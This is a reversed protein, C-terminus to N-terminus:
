PGVQGRIEGSPNTSTHVNVYTLGDVIYGLYATNTVTVSGTLTGSTGSAGSFPIIVGASAGPAAPGHIHAASANASLGSYSVNWSLHNGVLWLTAAGTGPTTVAPVEAAGSLTTHLVAATIQGRIEGGPNIGTHINAYTKGALVNTRESDTLTIVGTLRGSTPAGSVGTFPELVGASQTSSAPGHIHGATAPASLGSYTIDYSLSNGELVFTGLGTAQTTVAPVERDGTMWATFLTANASAPALVRFFGSGDLLPVVAGQNSTTQVDQWQADSLQNKKQVLYPATGGTWAITAAAGQASISTITIAAGGGPTPQPDPHSIVTYLTTDGATNAGGAPTNTSNVAGKGAICIQRTTMAVSPTDTILGLSGDRDYNVFPFFSHTLYTVNTGDFKMVRAAVQFQTFDATPKIKYAVCFRDLADVALAVRDVSHIAPDTDTVVVNTVFSQNRSDFISVTVPTHAGADGGLYVYSSRIDSAIRTGDGRGADYSLGSTEQMVSGKLTGANDYFYITDHVRVAFGGKYAAVNDWIDHPDVLTNTKVVTGTPTIIGFTAVEGATSSFTTKDDWVVVFNGNDLGAVTGGTRSVQNGGGPVTSPDVYEGYVADFAKHLPTQLLTGPDLSFPQVTVYRNDAQYILNSTWRTDSKFQALQGASTEAATIFSTAGLRVDGAVRPPNGNERSLNIAGRYPVGDDSFFEEGIKPAGGAAPQFTVVFRQFPADKTAGPPATQDDAFTGASILFTTDGMVSIYPEWNGLNALQAATDVPGNTYYNGTSNYWLLVDPVVHTLAVSATGGPILTVPMSFDSTHIRANHTGPPDASYNATVTVEGAGLDLGSLDLNFKGVAPDSDFPGNDVFSGLYKRGQPYGNTTGDSNVLEQLGFAAGNAWGEPDLQYVDIIINTYPPTGTACIGVLRPFINTASLIPLIDANTSMFPAAYNTFNNLRSGAGDAYDFPVLDANVLKNGRFSVRAGPSLKLLLPESSSAPTPFQTAFPNNDYIVNAELADSVGDFDSGIRATAQGGLSDVLTASNTFRTVGDVAVGFWNGAIVVNTQPTSYLNIASSGGKAFGGFVNGEDADNVGDGDTGILCNSDDRGIEVYGDGQQAGNNLVSFDASTMGDPLVGWFNGSIRYNLGESDFGYGTIIVNFEARPNASGAAVGIIGPQPYVPNSGTADRHRYAALGIGPAAVTTGDSLYAIQGTAPDVGIWCGSVHWNECSGVYDRAFSLSKITAANGNDGTPNQPASLIALGKITVNTGRFVGLVAWEDHGFGYKQAPDGNIVAINGMDTANANRSDLCIRLKANNPAHIPNTNPAAGPQSYGDITVSNNTIIPYGGDPTELYFVQDAGGALNFNITDGDHLLQIAQTLNTQGAVVANNTSTVTITAANASTVAAVFGVFLSLHRTNM